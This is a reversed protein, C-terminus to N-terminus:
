DFKEPDRGSNVIGRLHRGDSIGTRQAAQLMGMMTKLWERMMRRDSEDAFTMRRLSRDMDWYAWSVAQWSDWDPSNNLLRFILEEGMRANAIPKVPANQRHRSAHLILGIIIPIITTAMLLPFRRRM